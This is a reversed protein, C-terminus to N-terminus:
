AYPNLKNNNTGKNETIETCQKYIPMLIWNKWSIMNLSNEMEPTNITDLCCTTIQSHIKLWLYVSQSQNLPIITHLNTGTNSQSALFFYHGHGHVPCPSAYIIPLLSTRRLLCLVLELLKWHAPGERKERILKNMLSAKCNTLMAHGGGALVFM